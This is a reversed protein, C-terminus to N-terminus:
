LTVLGLPERMLDFDRDAHLLVQGHEVCFTAIMVDITKRVTIGRRRLLRYARASTLALACSTMAVCDLRDLLAQARRFDADRDFGQLVEALILDGILIFERGLLDDLLDAPWSEVANFYDIWVSSDVIIM